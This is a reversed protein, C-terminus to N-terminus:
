NKRKRQNKKKKQKNCKLWNSPPPTDRVESESPDWGSVYCERLVSDYIEGWKEEWPGDRCSMEIAKEKALKIKM